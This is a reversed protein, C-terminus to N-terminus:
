GVRKQLECKSHPPFQQDVTGISDNNEKSCSHQVLLTTPLKQSLISKPETPERGM